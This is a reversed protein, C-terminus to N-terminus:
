ILRAFEDAFAEFRRAPRGLVVEVDNTVYAYHGQAFWDLIEGLQEALWDNLGAAKMGDIAAQRSVAIYEIPKGAALSLINAQEAFTLPEPGSLQYTKNRHQPQTLSAVVVGAVDRIDVVSQKANGMPLYFQGTAKISELSGFLNQYFSNPQVLTYDVGSAKVMEDTLAHTRIIHSGADTTAGMGSLKVLHQAGSAKMASLVNEVWLANDQHIAMSLYISEVGEMAAILSNVDDYNGFRVQQQSLGLAKAGAQNRIMVKFDAGLAGLQKVVESGTNGTAGLVLITM